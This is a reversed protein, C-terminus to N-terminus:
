QDGELRPEIRALAFVIAASVFAVLMVNGEMEGYSLFFVGWLPISIFFTYLTIASFSMTRAYWVRVRFLAICYLLSFVLVAVRGFDMILEGIFGNFVAYNLDRADYLSKYAMVYEKADYEGIVGFHELSDCFVPFSRRGLLVEGYEDNVEWFEQFNIANQGIYQILSYGASVFRGGAQDGGLGRAYAISFVGCGAAFAMLALVLRFRWWQVRTYFGSIFPWCLSCIIPFLLMWYVIGNRGASALGLFPGALSAVFLMSIMVKSRQTAVFFFFLLLAIPWFGTALHAYFDGGRGQGAYVEERVTLIGVKLNRIFSPVTDSLSYFCLLLVGWAYCDVMRSYRCVPRRIAPVRPFVHPVLFVLMVACFYVLPLWGGRGGEIVYLLVSGVASILYLCVLFFGMYGQASARRLAVWGLVCLVLSYTVLIMM